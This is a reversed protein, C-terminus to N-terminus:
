HWIRAHSAGAVGSEVVLISTRRQVVRTESGGQGLAAECRSASVGGLTCPVQHPNSRTLLLAPASIQHNEIGLVQRVTRNRNRLQRHAGDGLNVAPPHGLPLQRDGLGSGIAVYCRRGLKAFLSEIITLQLAGRHYGNSYGNGQLAM